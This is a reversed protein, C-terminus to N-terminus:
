APFHRYKMYTLTLRRALLRRLSGQSKLVSAFLIRPDQIVKEMNPFTGIPLGKTVIEGKLLNGYVRM